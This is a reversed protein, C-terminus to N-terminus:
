VGTGISSLLVYLEGATNFTSLGSSLIVVGEEEAKALVAPEVERENVVIIASLDKLFAVAVINVHVQSTIWVMGQGAKGVVDSLLDSVYAGTVERNLLNKGSLYKFGLEDAISKLDNKMYIMINIM